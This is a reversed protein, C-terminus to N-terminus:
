SDVPIKLKMGPKLKKVNLGSNVNMIEDITVNNYKKAIDWLTDGPKVIYEIMQVKNGINTKEKVGSNKQVNNSAKEKKTKNEVTPLDKKSKTYVILKQGPYILNSRLHNWQKLHKVSCHYRSAILGLSEGRRVTHTIYKPKVEELYKQIEKQKKQHIYAYIEKENSVFKSIAQLSM